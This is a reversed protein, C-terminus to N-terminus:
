DEEDREPWEGRAQEDATPLRSLQYGGATGVGIEARPAAGMPIRVRDGSLLAREARREADSSTDVTYVRRARGRDVNRRRTM